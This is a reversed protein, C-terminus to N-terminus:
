KQLLIWSAGEVSYGRNRLYSAACRLGLTNRIHRSVDVVSQGKPNKLMLGNRTRISFDGTKGSYVRSGIILDDTRTENAKNGRAHSVAKLVDISVNEMQM